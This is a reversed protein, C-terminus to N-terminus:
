HTTRRTQRSNNTEDPARAPAHQVLQTGPRKGPQGAAQWAAHRTARRGAQKGPQWGPRSGARGGVRGGEEGEQASVCKNLLVIIPTRRFCDAELVNRLLAFQQELANSGDLLGRDFDAMSAVFIIVDINDAHQEWELQEQAQGGIDTCTFAKEEKKNKITCITSFSIREVASDVSTTNRRLRLHLLDANSPMFDYDCIRERNALVYPLATLMLESGATDTVPLQFDPKLVVAYAKQISPDALVALVDDKLSCSSTRWHHGDYQFDRLIMELRRKSKGVDDQFKFISLIMKLRAASNSVLNLGMYRLIQQLNSNSNSGMNLGMYLSIEHLALLSTILNLRLELKARQRETSLVAIASPVALVKMQRFITSKGVGHAAGLLLMNLSPLMCSALKKAAAEISSRLLLLGTGDEDGDEDDVEDNHADGAPKNQGGAPKNLGGGM